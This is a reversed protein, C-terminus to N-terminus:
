NQNDYILYAKKEWNFEKSRETSKNRKLLLEDKNNFLNNIRSSLELVIENETKNGVEIKIGCENNVMQGPGGLNLTSVPLGHSMAELVVFGGSDRLSPFLLLDSKSFIEFLDERKVRGLWKISENIKYKKALAKLNSEQPGSGIITLFFKSNKKKLERFTKLVISIGKWEIFNGAFVINFLDQDRIVSNDINPFKEFGIGLMIKTKHHYRKPITKKTELSTVFIKDSKHLTLNILPSIKIYYNSLDRFLEKIKFSLSFNKRLQYPVKEGGSIPGFIFPIKHLCLLNPFRISVFTVHHVFDFKIKKVISKTAFYIGIHWFIYYLYPISAKKNLLMNKKSGSKLINLIWDPFDFYIFNLNEINNEKLYQEINQKNNSKTVVHVEHGLRCLTTAWKWGVEPESGKNPECAYASLLIKLKKKM